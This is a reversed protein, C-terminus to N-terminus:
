FLLEGKLYQLIRTTLQVDPEGSSLDLYLRVVSLNIQCVVADGTGDNDVNKTKKDNKNRENKVSALLLEYPFNDVMQKM